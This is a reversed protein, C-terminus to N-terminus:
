EQAIQRKGNRHEASNGRAQIKPPQHRQQHLQQEANHHESKCYHECPLVLFRGCRSQADDDGNEHTDMGQSQNQSGCLEKLADLWDDLSPIATLSLKARAQAFAQRPVTRVLQAQGQLHGFCGDLEAQISMRMGTLM